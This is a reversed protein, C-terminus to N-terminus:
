VEIKCPVVSERGGMRKTSCIHSCQSPRLKMLLECSLSNDLTVKLKKGVESKWETERVKKKKKKKSKREFNTQCLFKSPTGSKVQPYESKKKKLTFM